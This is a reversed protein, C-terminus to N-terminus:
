VKKEEKLTNEITKKLIINKDNVEIHSKNILIKKSFFRKRVVLESFENKQPHRIIDIVKGVYKGDLDFVKKGLNLIVPEISLKITRKTMFEIFESGIYHKKFWKSIVLGIIKHDKILIDKVRGLKGGQKGIVKKCKYNSYTKVDQFDNPKSFISEEEYKNIENKKTKM